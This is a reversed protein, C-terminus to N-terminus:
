KKEVEFIMMMGNAMHFLNHCHYLWKGEADAVFEIVAYDMHELNITHKILDVTKGNFEILKFFFGHLHMPHPMMTKNKIRVRIVDGLKIKMLDIKKGDSDAIIFDYKQHNGKLNFEIKTKVNLNKKYYDLYSPIISKLELYHSVYKQNNKSDNEDNVYVKDGNGVFTSVYDNNKSGLLYARLEYALGVKLRVVIDYTEGMAVSLTDVKIPNVDVGDASVIEMDGGSYKFNLFGDIFANIIRLRVRGDELKDLVEVNKNNVLLDVYEVDSFHNMMSKGMGGNQMEGHKMEENQMEGHKMEGHKMEENQMESHNMEEHKMEENQMEGHNMEEHKMEENQMEGHKMESNKGTLNKFVEIPDKGLDGEFILVESRDNEKAIKNEYFVIAGRVGMAEEFGHAHYWFTGYQKVKFKYVFTEGSKIPKMNVDVVGDMNNPVILGHWHIIMDKLSKNVVTIELDDNMIASIVPPNGNNLKLYTVSTSDIQRNEEEILIQYKVVEAKINCIFITFFSLIVLLNKAIRLM